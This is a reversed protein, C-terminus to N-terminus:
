RERGSLHLSFAELEDPGVMEALAGALMHVLEAQGEDLKYPRAIAGFAELDDQQIARAMGVAERMREFQRETM